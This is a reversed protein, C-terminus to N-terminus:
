NGAARKQERILDERMFRLTTEFIALTAKAQATDLGRRALDAVRATQTAVCAEAEAVRRQAVELPTENM